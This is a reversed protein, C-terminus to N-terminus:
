NNVPQSFLDNTFLQDIFSPTLLIADGTDGARLGDLSTSLGEVPVRSQIKSTLLGNTGLWELFETWKQTTMLGWNGDANLYCTSLIKQLCVNIQLIQEM